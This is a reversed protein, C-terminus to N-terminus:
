VEKMKGCKGCFVYGDAETDPYQDEEKKEPLTSLFSDIDSPLILPNGHRINVAEAFKVLTEKEHAM